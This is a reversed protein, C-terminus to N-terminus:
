EVFKILILLSRFPSIIFVFVGLARLRILKPAEIASKMVLRVFQKSDMPQATAIISLMVYQM